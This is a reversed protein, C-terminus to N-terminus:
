NKKRKRFVSNYLYWKLLLQFTSFSLVICSICNFVSVLAVISTMLSGMTSKGLHSFRACLVNWLRIGLSVGENQYQSNDIGFVHVERQIYSRKESVVNGLDYVSRHPVLVKQCQNGDGSELGGLVRRPKLSYDM